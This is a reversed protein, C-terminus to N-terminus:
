TNHGSSSYVSADWRDRPKFTTQIWLKGEELSTLM